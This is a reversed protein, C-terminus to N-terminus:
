EEFLPAVFTREMTQGNVTRIKLHLLQGTFSINMIHSNPLLVILGSAAYSSKLPDFVQSPPAVKLGVHNASNYLYSYQENSLINKFVMEKRPELYLFYDTTLLYTNLESVFLEKNLRHAQEEFNMLQECIIYVSIVIQAFLLLISLQFISHIFTYGSENDCHIIRKYM